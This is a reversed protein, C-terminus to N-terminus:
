VDKNRIDGCGKCRLTYYTGNTGISTDKWPGTNITEWEHHHTKFDGIIIKWLWGIM